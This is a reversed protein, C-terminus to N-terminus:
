CFSVTFPTWNRTWLLCKRVTDESLPFSHPLPHHRKQLSMFGMWPPESRVIIVGFAECINRPSFVSMWIMRGGKRRFALAWFPLGLLPPFWAVGVVVGAPQLRSEETSWVSSGSWQKRPCKIGSWPCVSIQQVFPGPLLLWLCHLLSWLIVVQLCVCTLKPSLWRMIGWVFDKLKNRSRQWWQLFHLNFNM